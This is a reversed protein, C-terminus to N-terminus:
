TKGNEKEPLNQNEELLDYYNEYYILRKDIEYFIDAVITRKERDNQFFTMANQKVEELINDLKSFEIYIKKKKM